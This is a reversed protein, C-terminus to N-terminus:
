RGEEVAKIKDKIAQENPVCKYVRLNRKEDCNCTSEWPTNGLKSYQPGWKKGCSPCHNLLLVVQRYAARLRNLRSILDSM